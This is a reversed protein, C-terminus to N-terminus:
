ILREFKDKHNPRLKKIKAVIEDFLNHAVIITLDRLDTALMDTSVIPSNIGPIFKGQKLPNDDVVYEPRLNFYNFLVIESASAGYAVVLPNFVFGKIEKEKHVKMEFLYSEGHMSVTKFGVMDLECFSALRAMSQPTFYSIHEHYFNDLRAPTTLIYIRGNENLLEKMRLLFTKPDDNHAFVNFATIVDFGYGELEESPFFDIFIHGNRDLKKYAEECLEKCPDIGTVSWERNKFEKLLSGDNCGIDLVTSGCKPTDISMVFDYFFNLHNDSTGTQYLYNSFLLGRDVAISLQKHSCFACENVVLPFSVSEAQASDKLNNVLPQHGLDCHPNLDYSDCVLCNKLEKTM